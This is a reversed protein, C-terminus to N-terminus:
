HGQITMVWQFERNEVSWSSKIYSVIAVADRGSLQDRFAPMGTQTANRVGDGGEFIVKYIAADAYFWTRGSDDQPPAPYRGDAGPRRWGAQGELKLGHCAACKEEYLRRGDQLLAPSVAPIPPVTALLNAGPPHTPRPITGELVLTPKAFSADLGGSATIPPASAPGPRYGQFSIAIFIALVLALGGM